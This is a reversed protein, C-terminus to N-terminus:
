EHAEWRHVRRERCWLEAKGRNRWANATTIADEDDRAHFEHVKTVHNM